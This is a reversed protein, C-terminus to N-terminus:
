RNEISYGDVVDGVLWASKPCCEGNIGSKSRIVFFVVALYTFLLILETLFKYNKKVYISWINILARCKMSNTHCVALLYFIHHWQYMKECLIVYM